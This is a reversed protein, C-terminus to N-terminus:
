KAPFIELIHGGKQQKKKGRKRVFNMFNEEKKERGRGKTCGIESYKSQDRCPLVLHLGQICITIKGSIFVKKGQLVL